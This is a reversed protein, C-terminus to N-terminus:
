YVVPSSVLAGSGRYRGPMSARPTSCGRGIPAHLSTPVYRRSNQRRHLTSSSSCHHFRRVATTSSDHDLVTPSQDPSVSYGTSILVVLSGVRDITLENPQRSSMPPFFRPSPANTHRALSRRGSLLSTQIRGTWITYIAILVPISSMGTRDVSSQKM